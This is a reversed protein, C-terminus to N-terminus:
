FFKLFFRSFDGSFGSSFKYFGLFDGRMSFDRSIGRLLVPIKIPQAPLLEPSM